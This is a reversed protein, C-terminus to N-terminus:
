GISEVESIMPAVRERLTRRARVLLSEVAKVSLGMVAAAEANSMEEHYCLVLATRQREPLDAMAAAVHRGQDSREASLAVDENPDAPDGAAELPAQVPRRKRDIGLNVVVRYLWTTFKAGDHRWTPAHKWVRLFAEQAVEEAEHRNGLMRRSFGVCRGLHRDVLTAYAAHDGEGVRGMLEEDSLGDM